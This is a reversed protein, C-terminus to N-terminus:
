CSTQRYFVDLIFELKCLTGLLLTLFTKGKYRFNSITDYEGLIICNAVSTELLEPLLVVNELYEKIKSYFSPYICFKIHKYNKLSSATVQQFLVYIVVFFLRTSVLDFQQIHQSHGSGVIESM